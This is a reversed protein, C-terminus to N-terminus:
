RDFDQPVNLVGVGVGNGAGNLGHFRIDATTSAISSTSM